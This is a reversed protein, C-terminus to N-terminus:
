VNQIKLITKLSREWMKETHQMVYWEWKVLILDSPGVDPKWDFCLYCRGTVITGWGARSENPQSVVSILYMKTHLNKLVQHCQRFTCWNWHFSVETNKSTHDVFLCVTKFSDRDAIGAVVLINVDGHKENHMHKMTIDYTNRALSCLPFTEMINVNTDQQLLSYFM